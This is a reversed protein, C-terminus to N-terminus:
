QGADRTGEGEGPQAEPQKAAAEMADAHEYLSAAQATM